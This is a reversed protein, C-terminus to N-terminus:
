CQCKLSTISVMEPCINASGYKEVEKFKVVKVRLEASRELTKAKIDSRMSVIVKLCTVGTKCFDLVKNVIEDGGCIIVRM